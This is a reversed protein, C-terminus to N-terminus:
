IIKLFDYYFQRHYGFQYGYLPKGHSLISFHILSDLVDKNGLPHGFYPNSIGGKRHCHYTSLASKSIQCPIRQQPHM